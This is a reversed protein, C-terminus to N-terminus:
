ESVEDMKAGCNPCYNTLETYGWAEWNECASCYFIPEVHKESEIEDKVWHGHKIPEADVTPLESVPFGSDDKHLVIRCDKDYPSIDVLRM